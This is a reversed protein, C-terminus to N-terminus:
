HVGYVLVENSCTPLYVRGGAITPPVFKSFNYASEGSNNWLERLTIPDFARLLGGAQVPTDTRAISAFLIGASSRSPDVTVALMGGPMGFPPGPPAVALNGDLGLALTKHADDLRNGLWPFAKLHDKEPWLYVLAPGNQFSAFVPSGHVHSWYGWNYMWMAQTLVLPAPRNDAGDTWFSDNAEFSLRIAGTNDVVFADLQSQSQKIASVTATSPAFHIWRDLFWIGAPTIAAPPTFGNIGDTWRGDNSEWTVAVEGNHDVVFADLQNHNQKVPTVCSGPMAFNLPTIQAPPTYGNIGDSWRGNNVEWTVYVAGDKAVFFADLQNDNQKAASVCAGLPAVGLPTIQAPPTFGNIGDTWRSDGSEWTVYLAGDNGAYLVDLQNDNQKIAAVCSGPQARNQPTIAAPPTFGNLGDAWRGDNAEWTVVVHGDNGVVFADLQRSNQQAAAICAGSTTTSPPTIPAPRPFGNTGDSWHGDGVEWTVWAQGSSDVVFADLQNDNQKAAAVQAGPPALGPPTIEAPGRDLLILDTWSGNNVEWSVWLGGDRGVVFTDLQTPNQFATAITGGSHPLYPAGPPWYQNFSAQLKQVVKDASPDDPWESYVADTPIRDLDAVTWKHANDIQGMNTRDLVYLMGQKGSALLYPTNPVLVAGASGFDLDISDLWVRRYSSFWDAVAMIVRSASGDPNRSIAVKLKVAADAFSPLDRDLHDEEARRNGTVFYISTGDSALGTSAQWIGGGDVNPPTVAFSGVLNLSPTDLAFIWGHFIPNGPDECRSAFAVYLIGNLLLLSARSREWKVDFGPVTIETKRIPTGTPIDLSEIWQHAHDPNTDENTRYSVFIASQARDIVPTAEIGIGQPSIDDCGLRHQQDHGIISLDNQGLKQMWLQAHSTADFSYVNDQETAVLVIDRSPGSPVQAHELYLPQAYVNGQVRLPPDIRGWRSNQRFVSQNLGTNFSTGTRNNDNRETTFDQSSLSSAALILLLGGLFNRMYNACSTKPQSNSHFTRM